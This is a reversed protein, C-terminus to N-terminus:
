NNQGHQTFFALAAEANDAREEAWVAPREYGYSFWRAAQRADTLALFSDYKYGAQEMNPKITDMLVGIQGHVDQGDIQPFYVLSWMCLGYFGSAYIYPQLDLTQGGCESMMNGIIGATVPESLGASRLLEWVLSATPYRKRQEATTYETEANEIAADEQQWWEQCAVIVPHDEPHGEQRMMEAIEHALSKNAQAQTWSTTRAPVAVAALVLCAAAARQLHKNM